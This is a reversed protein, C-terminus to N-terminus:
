TQVTARQLSIDVLKKEADEASRAIFGIGGSNNVMNIFNTQMETPRGTLTKVEVATFLGKYVGVYDSSGEGLGCSIIRGQKIVVDGAEVTITQHKKIWHVVNGVYAKAVNNRFLRAGITALRIQIQKGLLSESKASGLMLNNAGWGDPKLNIPM